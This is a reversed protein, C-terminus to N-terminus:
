ASRRALIRNAEYQWSRRAPQPYIRFKEGDPKDYGERTPQPPTMGVMLAKLRTRAETRTM